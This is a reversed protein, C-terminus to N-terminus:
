VQSLEASELEYEPLIYPFQLKQDEITEEDSFERYDGTIEEGEQIDRVAYTCDYHSRTNPENAHNTFRDDDGSLVFAKKTKHYYAYYIVQERATASLEKLREKSIEVDFGPQFKWIVTGRPIFQRAILGFRHIESHGISAKVLLM